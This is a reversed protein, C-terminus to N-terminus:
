METAKAESTKWKAEFHKCQKITARVLLGICSHDSYYKEETKQIYVGM